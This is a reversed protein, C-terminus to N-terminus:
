AAPPAARTFHRYIDWLGYLGVASVALWVAQYLWSMAMSSDSEVFRYALSVGWRAVIGLGYSGALVLFGTIRSRQWTAVLLLIALADLAFYFFGMVFDM